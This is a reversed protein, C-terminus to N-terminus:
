SSGQYEFAAVGRRFNDVVKLCEIRAIVTAVEREVVAACAPQDM